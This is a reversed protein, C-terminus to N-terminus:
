IFEVCFDVRDETQFFHMVDDKERGIEKKDKM